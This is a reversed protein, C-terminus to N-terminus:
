SNTCALRERTRSAQELVWALFDEVEPRQVDPEGRALWYACPVALRGDAGFPEVLRGSDLAESSLALRALTVGQGEEAAQVQQHTFNLHLWRRPELTPEGHRSLWHQWRLYRASPRVDDEELLTHAVLDAARAMPPASGQAIRAALAPSIAPTVVEDFLPVTGAPVASSEGFRLAVDLETQDLAELRDTALIRIDIDPHEREFAPLRPILWLSAFSAFTTVSVMRRGRASRIERVTADLRMLTPRATQLLLRGAGTLAVHRTGRSFLQAGIEEELSQIQRSIAPQTLSLEEAAARFSNLRAVAEFARLPGIALPRHRMRNINM